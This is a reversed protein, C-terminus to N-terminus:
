TEPRCASPPAPSSMPPSTAPADSREATGKGPMDKSAEAAGRMLAGLVAVALDLTEAIPREDIYRSVLAAAASPTTEDGGILGLRITERIDAHKFDLTALRRWIAGVGSGCLEELEGIEGIRLCFRRRRGAFDGRYVTSEISESMVAERM